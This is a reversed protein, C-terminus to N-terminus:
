KNKFNPAYTASFRHNESLTVSMVRVPPKAINQLSDYLWKTINETTPNIHDFPPVENIFTHDLPKIVSQIWQTAVYYDVVMDANADTNTFVVKLQYTHGHTNACPGDYHYLKVASEFTDKITVTLM